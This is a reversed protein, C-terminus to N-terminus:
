IPVPDGTICGDCRACFHCTSRMTKCPLDSPSRTRLRGESILSSRSRCLPSEVSHASTGPCAWCQWHLMLAPNLVMFHNTHSHCAEAQLAAMRAATALPDMHAPRSSHTYLVPRVQVCYERVVSALDFGLKIHMADLVACGLRMNALDARMTRETGRHQVKLVVLPQQDGASLLRAQHVQSFHPSLNFTRRHQACYRMQQNLQQSLILSSKLGPANM